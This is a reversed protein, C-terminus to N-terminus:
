RREWFAPGVPETYDSKAVFYGQADVGIPLQPLSRSAPGFIPRCGDLVDFQSQHCPCLLLNDQQQYLSVPCGAHTCIKSYAFYDGYRYNERGKRIEVQETPRLRILMTAADAAANGGPVDPFVTQIAGPKMDAPKIPTGDDRVLRVGSKWPTTLLQRGPKKFLGILPAVALGTLGLVSLGLTRKILGRRGLQAGTAMEAFSAATTTRDVEDSRGDHRQQVAEEHPMLWKAYGIVAIGLGGLGLAMCVGLLPTFLFNLGRDAEFRWPWFMSVLLYGIGGVFAMFLWFAVKREARRELKTGPVVFHHQYHAIEVGDRAAGERVRDLQTPEPLPEPSRGRPPGTTM